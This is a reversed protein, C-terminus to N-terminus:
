LPCGAKERTPTTRGASVPAASSHTPRQVLQPYCGPKPEDLAATPRNLERNAADRPPVRDVITPSAAIWQLPRWLVPHFSTPMGEGVGYVDLDAAQAGTADLVGAADILVRGAMRRRLRLPDLTIMEPSATMIVAADAGLVAAYPDSAVRAPLGDVHAIPDYATVGAGATVLADVIAAGPSDRTDDTGPKFALGLVAVRRGDLRGLAHELKELVADRAAANVQQAASAIPTQHGVADAVAIFGSLDKPLCSGGFGPGPRLFQEGIRRDLGVGRLVTSAQAGLRECLGAVENAFSIKVALFTNAAYKVLEASRRDCIVVPADPPYIGAILGAIAQSDAGIVVRDPAMFDEVAHGERLFEPNSAVTVMVRPPAADACYLELAECAGPPVTSKVAIVLDRRAAGALQRAAVGLQRLDPDGGARPPTGVCLLVVSADNLAESVEGTFSLRGTRLGNALLEDLGPEHIPTRGATLMALRSQDAELCHVRHGLEALCVASTLGVYGAGVVCVSRPTPAKRAEPENVVKEGAEDM